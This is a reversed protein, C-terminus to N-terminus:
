RRAADSTLIDSCIHCPESVLQPLVPLAHGRPKAKSARVARLVDQGEPKDFEGEAADDSSVFELAKARKRAQTDSLLVGVTKKWNHTLGAPCSAKSSKTSPPNEDPHTSDPVKRKNSHPLPPPVQRANNVAARFQGREKERRKGRKRKVRSSAETESNTLDAGAEEEEEEDEDEDQEQEEYTLEVGADGEEEQWGTMFDESASSGRYSEREVALPNNTFTDAAEDDMPPSDSLTEVDTNSMLKPDIYLDPRRAELLRANDRAQMADQLAACRDVQSKRHATAADEIAAAEAKAKAADAKVQESSRRQITNDFIVQAPRFNKKARTPREVREV